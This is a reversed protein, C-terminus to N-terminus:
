KYNTADLPFYIHVKRCSVITFYPVEPCSQGGVKALLEGFEDLKKKL